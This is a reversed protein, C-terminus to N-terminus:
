HEHTALHIPEGMAFELGVINTAGNNALRRPQPCTGTVRVGHVGLLLFRQDRKSSESVQDGIYLHTTKSSGKITLTNGSQSYDCYDAIAMNPLNHVEPVHGARLM